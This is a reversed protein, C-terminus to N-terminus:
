RWAFLPAGVAEVAPLTMAAEYALVDTVAGDIRRKDSGKVLVYLTRGDDEAESLRAKQKHAAKVHEDTLPDADHTHAGTGIGTLWRDTARAFQKTINTDFALVITEGYEQAWGEIETRWYPTDCLMLGVSYTAFLLKVAAKVELRDVEWSEKGPHADLWRQLEGGISRQWSRWIFSRGEANCGRIVTADWRISGDFGAGIRTGPDPKWGPHGLEDWRDPDVAHGAGAVLINGYFRMAQAPDREVLDAAENDISDIPLHGGNETLVDADYVLRHIKHRDRRDTYSLTKPPQVFQRYIDTASSEYQMQAVSKEAPDWANSDMSVRGGMGSVGRYQVDAVRAMKNQITWIGVEGQKAFTIRQGLRSQASSTVTDIRGGGPLRIFDEGTKPILDGLPGLEIMPRLSDYTNDTAEQSFATIQILPTPWSMGMPEGPDYPYEWGCRCGHDRCVYGEDTGAWGAFLAPGVGEVCIHAAGLPDKGIKQPGVLLGRRYVFAPALMPSDPNWEATGRVLYFNVIYRAQYDYLRFPRGRQFGDPVVCHRQIWSPVVLMARNESM